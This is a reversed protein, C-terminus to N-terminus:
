SQHREAKTRLQKLHNHYNFLATEPKMGGLAEPNVAYQAVAYFCELLEKDAQEAYAQKESEILAKLDKKFGEDNCCIM